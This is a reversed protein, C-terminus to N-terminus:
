MSATCFIMRGEPWAAFHHLTRPFRWTLCARRAGTLRVTNSIVRQGGTRHELTHADCSGDRSRAPWVMVFPPSRGRCTANCRGLGARASATPSPLHSYDRPTKKVGSLRELMLFDYTAICLSTHHYSGRCNRGEYHGLGREQNLKLYDREIHWRMKVITVLEELSISEPVNSLFYHTPETDGHPWEILLWEYGM